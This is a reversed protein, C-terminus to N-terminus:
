HQLDHFSTAEFVINKAHENQLSKNVKTNYNQTNGPVYWYHCSPCRRSEPIPPSGVYDRGYCAM